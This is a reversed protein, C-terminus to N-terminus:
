QRLRRRLAQYSSQFHEGLGFLRLEAATEAASLLWDHYWARREDATTRLRWAHQRRGQCLAVALAPLTSTVLALVIWPGYPILVAFMAVLTIGNQLLGGASELLAVPRYRAEARARHLHDFYEPTEYFALDMNVCQHHILDRVHDHVRESQATRIWGSLGRLLENLLLVAGMAAGLVLVPRVTEWVAGARLAGMLGDALARTLFVTALPLLGQLILLILWPATWGPASQCM